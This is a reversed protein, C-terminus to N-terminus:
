APADAQDTEALQERDERVVRFLRNILADRRRAREEQAPGAPEYRDVAGAEVIGREALLRELADCRDYLVGIEASMALVIAHLQDIAPNDFYQPRPGKATRPFASDSM